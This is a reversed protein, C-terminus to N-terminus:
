EAKGTLKGTDGLYTWKGAIEQGQRTLVLEFPGKPAEGNVYLEAGKVTLKVSLADPEGEPLFTAAPAGSSDKVTLTAALPHEPLQIQLKYVGTPVTAWKSSAASTASGAQTASQAIAATSGAVVLLASTVLARLISHKM